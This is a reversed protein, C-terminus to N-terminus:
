QLISDVVFMVQFRTNLRAEACPSLFGVGQVPVLTDCSSSMETKAKIVLYIEPPRFGIMVNLNSCNINVTTTKM